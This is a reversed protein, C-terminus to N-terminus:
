RLAEKVREPNMPLQMLRAGVSDYIANAIVAGMIVIAPEGGGQPDADKNDMIITDIKPVWSFRPIDYSDFNLDLIEGGKFHIDEKLAYGLGMTISGEMQIKAGEPNIALGMDQACVVRKVKVEGNNKNVEVEAMAAVYTGADTACAIGYGRGSPSKAPKWEFKEAVSKLVAQMKKDTLNKL